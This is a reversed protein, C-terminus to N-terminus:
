AAPAAAERDAYAKLVAALQSAPSMITGLLRARMIPLPPLEALSKVDEASMFRQELYGGKIKVFDSTRAFENITKAAEPANDFAFLIATSGDLLKEADPLGAQKFAVKGLTNKVIHFEGGLGRVKARLEDIQQMTLGLYETVIMAKSQNAWQMYQNVLEDKREKSIAL